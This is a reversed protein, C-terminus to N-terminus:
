DWSFNVSLESYAQKAASNWCKKMDASLDEYKPLSLGDWCLGRATESYARYMSASLNEILNEPM